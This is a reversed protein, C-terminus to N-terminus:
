RVTDSPQPLVAHAFFGACRLAGFRHEIHRGGNKRHDDRADDHMEHAEIPEGVCLVVIEQERECENRRAVIMRKRQAEADRVREGGIGPGEHGVGEDV